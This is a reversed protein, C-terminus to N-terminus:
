GENPPFVVISGNGKKRTWPRRWHGSPRVAKAGVPKRAILNKAKSPVALKSTATPKPSVQSPQTNAAAPQAAVTSREVPMVPVSIAIPSSIPAAGHPPSPAAGADPATDTVTPIDNAAPPTIAAVKPGFLSTPNNSVFKMGILLIAMVGCLALPKWFTKADIPPKTPAPAAVQPEPDNIVARVTAVRGVLRDAMTRRSRPMAAEPEVDVKREHAAVPGELGGLMNQLAARRETVVVKCHPCEAIHEELQRLTEGSMAEGALYRGIQSEAIKCEFNQVTM